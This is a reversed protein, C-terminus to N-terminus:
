YVTSNVLSTLLEQKSLLKPIQNEIEQIRKCAWKKFARELEPYTRYWPDKPVRKSDLKAVDGLHLIVKFGAKDYFDRNNWSYLHTYGLGILDEHTIM